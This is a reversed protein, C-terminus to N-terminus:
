VVPPASNRAALEAGFDKAAEAISSYQKQTPASPNQGGQVIPPAGAKENIAAIQEPSLSAAAEAAAGETGPDGGHILTYANKYADFAHQLAADDDLDEPAALVFPSLVQVLEDEGWNPPFHDPNAEKLTLLDARYARDEEDAMQRDVFDLRERDEPDLEVEFEDATGGQEVHETAAQVVEEESAEPNGAAYKVAVKFIEEAEPNDSYVEAALKSLAADPDQGLDEYFQLLGEPVQERLQSLDTELKTTHPQVKERMYGDVKAYDDDDLGLARLDAAWPADGAGSNPQEEVQTQSAETVEPAASGDGAVSISM